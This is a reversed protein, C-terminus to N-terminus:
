SRTWVALEGKGSVKLHIRWLFDHDQEEATPVKFSAIHVGQPNIGDFVARITGDKGSTDLAQLVVLTKHQHEAYLLEQLEDLRQTLEALGIRNERKRAISISPCNTQSGRRDKVAVQEM